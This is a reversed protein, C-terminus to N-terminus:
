PRSRVGPQRPPASRVGNVPAARRLPFFLLPEHIYRALLADLGWAMGAGSRGLALLLAILFLHATMMWPHGWTTALAFNLVLFTGGVAGLSVLAGLLFSLGLLIEASAVLYAVQEQRFEVFRVLFRAYFPFPAGIEYVRFLLGGFLFDPDLLKTFGFYLFGAGVMMRLLAAM